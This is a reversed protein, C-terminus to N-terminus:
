HITVPNTPFINKQSVRIWNKKPLVPDEGRLEKFILQEGKYVDHHTGNNMPKDVTPASSLPEELGLLAAM